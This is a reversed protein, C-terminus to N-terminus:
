QKSRWELPGMPFRMGKRMALNLDEATCNGESVVREAEDAIAILIRDLIIGSRTAALETDPV